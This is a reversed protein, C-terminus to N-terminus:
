SIKEVACFTRETMETQKSLGWQSIRLFGPNLTDDDVDSFRVAIYWKMHPLVEGLLVSRSRGRHCEAHVPEPTEIGLFSKQRMM